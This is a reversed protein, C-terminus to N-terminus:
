DMMRAEEYEVKIDGITGRETYEEDGLNKKQAAAIIQSMTVKAPGDAPRPFQYLLEYSGDRKATFLRIYGKGGTVEEGPKLVQAEDKGDEKYESSITDSSDNVVILDAGQQGSMNFLGMGARNRMFLVAMIVVLVVIGVLIIKKM